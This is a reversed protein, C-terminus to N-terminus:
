LRGLALGVAPLVWAWPVPFSRLDEVTKVVAYLHRIREPRDHYYTIFDQLWVGWLAWVVLRSELAFVGIALGAHIAFALQQRVPIERLVRRREAASMKFRLEFVKVALGLPWAALILGLIMAWDWGRAGIWRFQALTVVTILLFALNMLWRRRRDHEAETPDHQRQSGGMAEAPRQSDNM